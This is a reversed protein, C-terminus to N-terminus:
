GQGNRNGKETTDALGEAEGQPERDTRSHESDDNETQDEELIRDYIKEAERNLRAVEADRKAIRLRENAESLPDRERWPAAALYRLIPIGVMLLVVGVAVALVIDELLM